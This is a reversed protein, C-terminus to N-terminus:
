ITPESLALELYFTKFYCIKFFGTGHRGNRGKQPLRNRKHKNKYVLFLPCSVRTYTRQANHKPDKPSHYIFPSILCRFMPLQIKLQSRSEVPLTSIHTGQVLDSALAPLGTKNLGKYLAGLVDVNRHQRKRWLLLMQYPQKERPFKELQHIDGLSLGLSQGLVKWATDIRVAFSSM